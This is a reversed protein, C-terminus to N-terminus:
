RLRYMAQELSGADGVVDALTGEAVVRGHSLMVLRDCRSAEQMYHTTVLVGVGAAATARLERWLKARGLPDMGSTPEDLILLRPDHQTAGLFALIRRTGLPLESVPRRGFQAAFEAARDSVGVGYAAAAFEVNERASLTPYLGQGQAVYGVQRRAALAPAGGMLRVSGATPADVGLLTRILTTKGAGNGGVLGVVEGPRVSISVDELATFDGFRRTIGDGETLKISSSAAGATQGEDDPLGGMLEVVADELTAHGGMVEAPTGQAITEHHDLVLVEDAKEAEDLYTTALVVTAGEDAAARIQQWLEVRSVPDVGTTPEDLIVLDPSHVTAMAMGLKQRMGGSLRSAVRGRFDNLGAAALTGEERDQGAGFVGEVFEMNEAVSLGRWVGSETSQYGLQHPDAERALKWLLSTKGAGDGGVVATVAGPRM